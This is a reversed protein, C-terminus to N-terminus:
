PDFASLIEFGVVDHGIQWYFEVQLRWSLDKVIVLVMVHEVYLLYQAASTASSRNMNQEYPYFFTVPWACYAEIGDSSNCGM